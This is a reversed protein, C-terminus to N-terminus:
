AAVEGATGAGRRHEARDGTQAERPSGRFPDGGPPPQAEQGESYFFEIDKGTAKAIAAIAAASPAYEDLEWGRVGRESAKLDTDTRIAHALDARSMKADLRAKMIREGDIKV